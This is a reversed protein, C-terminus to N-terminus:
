CVGCVGSAPLEMFCTGCIPNHREIDAEPDPCTAHAVARDEPDGIWVVEDGPVVKSPCNQCAGHYRAIWTNM